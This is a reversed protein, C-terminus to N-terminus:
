SYWGPGLIEPTVPGKSLMHCVLVHIVIVSRTPTRTLGLYAPVWPINIPSDTSPWWAYYTDHGETLHLECYSRSSVRTVLLRWYPPQYQSGGNTIESLPPHLLWGHRFPVCLSVYGQPIRRPTHDGPIVPGTTALPIVLCGWWVTKASRIPPCCQQNLSLSCGDLLLLITYTLLPIRNACFLSYPCGVPLPQLSSRLTWVAPHIHSGHCRVTLDYLPGLWLDVPVPDWHALM